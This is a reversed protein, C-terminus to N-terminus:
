KPLPFKKLLRYLKIKFPIKSKSMKLSQILTNIFEESEQFKNLIHQRPHYAINIAKRKKSQLQKKYHTVCAVADQLNIVNEPIHVLKADESREKVLLEFM